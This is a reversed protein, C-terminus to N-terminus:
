SRLSVLDRNVKLTRHTRGQQRPPRAHGDNVSEGLRAFIQGAHEVRALYDGSAIVDHFLVNRESFGNGPTWKSDGWDLKRVVMSGFPFAVEPQALVTDIVQMVFRQQTRPLQQIREIQQQLKPAPGRKKAAAADDGFLEELSVGLSRALTPLASVPIRRRGVEYSNITQQSVGLTAAMEVQTINQSRRLEAVRTGLRQFFARENASIAMHYRELPNSLSM